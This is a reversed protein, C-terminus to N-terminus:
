LPFLSTISQNSGFATTTSVICYLNEACFLIFNWCSHNRGLVLVSIYQHCHINGPGECLFHCFKLSKQRSRYFGVRFFCFAWSHFIAPLDSDVSNIDSSFRNLIRGTPTIDFFTTTPARLINKLLHNHLYRAARLACLFLSLTSIFM